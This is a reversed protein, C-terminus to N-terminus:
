VFINDYCTVFMEDYCIIEYVIISMPDNKIYLIYSLLHIRVYSHLIGINM